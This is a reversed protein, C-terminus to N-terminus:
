KRWSGNCLHLVKVDRLSSPPIETNHWKSFGWYLQPLITIDSTNGKSILYQKLVTTFIFPGTLELVFQPLKSLEELQVESLNSITGDICTLLDALFDHNKISGFMYQTYQIPCKYEKTFKSINHKYLEITMEIGTVFTGSNFNVYSELPQLCITDSDAYIGGISSLAMYRFFDARQAGKPLKIYSRYFQPHNKRVFEDCDHDSFFLYEFGPNNILWTKRFTLSKKPEIDTQIIIKPISM